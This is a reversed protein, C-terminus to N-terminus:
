SVPQRARAVGADCTPCGEVDTVSELTAASVAAADEGAWGVAGCRRCAYWGIEVSTFPAAPALDIVEVGMGWRANTILRQCRAARLKEVYLAYHTCHRMLLVAVTVGPPVPESRADTCVVTLPLATESWTERKVAEVAALLEPQVEWAIVQRAIQAMRQALRLDGAGIDLAVDDPRIAALVAAYDAEGYPAWRAEWPDLDHSLHRASSEPEHAARHLSTGPM